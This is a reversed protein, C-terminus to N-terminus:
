LYVCAITLVGILSLLYGGPHKAKAMVLNVLGLALWLGGIALELVVPTDPLVLALATILFFGSSSHWGFRVIAQTIPERIFPHDVALLPAILKKEGALSHFITAFVILGASIYHLM